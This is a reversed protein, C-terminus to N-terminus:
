KKLKLYQEIYAKYEEESGSHNDIITKKLLSVLSYCSIPHEKAIKEVLEEVNPEFLSLQLTPFIGILENILEDIFTNISLSIDIEPIVIRNLSSLMYDVENWTLKGDYDHVGFSTGNTLNSSIAKNIKM